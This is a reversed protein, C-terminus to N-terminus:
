PAPEAKGAIAEPDNIVLYHGHDSTVILVAEDWNSHAEVWDIVVQIAKEGTYIAGIANDLNNDHLAWDVDGAEVFLAFPQGPEAALVRLAAETMEALTPNELLDAETYTEATERIGPTPDYNGDATEYPLHGDDTGYFGFLRLGEAAAREAAALLGESGKIGQSREVVVYAGGQELDIKQRDSPALFPNGPEANEGQSRPAETPPDYTFGTGIVVDLGPLLEGKGTEQVIGPLGLMERAIDQYDNRHVNRAYLAAPSAHPFPVNTVTGVKWGDAQLDHYLPRLFRGDDAVNVGNNYSKVGNAYEAASCSSDTYAHLVRDVSRVGERDASSASQGKLYGPAKPALPGAVGAEPGAIDADYGGSLSDAPIQVTQADVDVVNKDFTPSTVISGYQATGHAEDDQFNLGSGKGESYIEGTRAIAAAQLTEGDLGDFWVTFLYKAGKAVADKQLHYLDAQDGYEAEPNFTHPPIRGYFAKIKSRDRYPSNEGTIAGLDAKSGFVYVPVLRNSHSTHNSFVDGPGQSGFHYARDLKEDKNAIYAAQMDRLPDDALASATLTTILALAALGPRPRPPSHDIM